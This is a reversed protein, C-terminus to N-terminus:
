KATKPKTKKVTSAPKKPAAQEKSTGDFILGDGDGDRPLKVAASAAAKTKALAAAKKAKAKKEAEAADAVEQIMLLSQREFEETINKDVKAQTKAPLTGTLKLVLKDWLTLEM